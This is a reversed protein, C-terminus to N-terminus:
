GLERAARLFEVLNAGSNEPTDVGYAPSLLLGGRGLTRIRHAVEERIAGPRATSFAAQTGVTGWLALSDGFRRRIATADMHEPQVPNIANVGLEILDQLIPETFGDSHYLVQIGPNIRRSASIIAGMRPGLYRRWMAPSVMMTGPMGVDDGLCLVDIGARVLIAANGSALGTLRDLLEHAWSPREEMDLLFSELGRLRWASEFLEGGLHPLNGGVALGRAHLAAISDGLAGIADTSREVEPFRLRRIARISRARALPNQGSRREPHYRWRAYARAQEPTGLRTDPRFPLAVRRFRDLGEHALTVFRIDAVEDPTWGEPLAREPPVGSFGLAVPIKDPEQGALAAM